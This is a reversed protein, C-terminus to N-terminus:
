IFSVAFFYLRVKCHYSEQSNGFTEKKEEKKIKEKLKMQNTNPLHMYFEKIQYVYEKVLIIIM